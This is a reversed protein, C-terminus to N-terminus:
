VSRCDHDRAFGRGPPPVQHHVPSVVAWLKLAVPCPRWRSTGTERAFPNGGASCALKTLFGSQTSRRLRETHVADLPGHETPRERPYGRQQRRHRARDSRITSGQRPRNEIDVEAQRLRDGARSGRPYRLSPVAGPPIRPLLDTVGSALYRGGRWSVSGIPLPRYQNSTPASSERGSGISRNRREDLSAQPNLPRQLQM